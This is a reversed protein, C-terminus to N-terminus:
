PLLRLHKLAGTEHSSRLVESTMFDGEMGTLRVKVIQGVFREPVAVLTRLYNETYGSFVGPREESREVLVHCTQGLMNERFAAGTKQGVTMM